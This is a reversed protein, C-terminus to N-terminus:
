YFEPKPTVVIEDVLASIEKPPKLTVTKGPSVSKISAGATKFVEAFKARDGEITLALGQDDSFVKLGADSFFRHVTDRASKPARYTELDDPLPGQGLERLKRGSVSRLFVQATVVESRKSKGAKAM